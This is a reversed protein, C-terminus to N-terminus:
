RGPMQDQLSQVKYGAPPEFTAADLDERRANRFITEQVLDDGEYSEVVVPFGNIQHLGSFLDGSDEQAMM